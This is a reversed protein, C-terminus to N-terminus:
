KNRKEVDELVEWRAYLRTLLDEDEALGQNIKTILQADQQYFKPEAMQLQLEAIKAELQEIKQPLQALERQENFSLKNTAPNRKVVPTKVVQERQQQKKHMKYEDYGGVFENFQGAEEYVLVSTVVQNIFARDHSILILTGPYDVLMSELLELTEIDLDNTPEDMVLLNVPKAFLKALLLRNKEGGSLVSVPQNFREPSFLFERLYSAVHKQKGNITVYDAGDGVNFMVTQDEQLHRRLQDFYAVSLSTGRKIQGSDPQLEGLLLRVLTTKGCGNPGIIGLKDGRTLLLSFDRLITKNGLNYNVQNAEIVVAGSRTVDLSFSKVKGLQNRRAKYEERMAKLARVRGENRTRRAKIGTRIWAEEEALKKDFLDNQKQESLRITERRDLYTEYNCDHQYLKGRDIELIRNSVQSLFERDHTVLLVAGKFSKLYAELWEIAEIDLHNTPEDLLLLDPTAILAAGLLVRRKMGGSLNNMRENTAIGLRSAMTEIQPLKDWAHLNDMQQQCLALKDTDGLQSLENFRSLIEGVEGLSKVLFHYVSEEETIPVEQTLGAVRLGSLQNIQGSDPVLDGLLLKLLTSKGAGNRGVLAIRDHPQIQWDANDLLQNGAINLSVGHLSIISM